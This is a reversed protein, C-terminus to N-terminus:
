WSRCVAAVRRGHDNAIPTEIRGAAVGDDVILRSKRVARRDEAHRPSIRLARQLDDVAVQGRDDGALVGPSEVEAVVAGREPLYRARRVPTLRIALKRNVVMLITARGLEPRGRATCVLGQHRSRQRPGQAGSGVREPDVVAHAADARLDPGVSDVDPRDAPPASQLYSSNKRLEQATPSGAITTSTGALM